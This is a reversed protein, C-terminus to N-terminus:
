AVGNHHTEQQTKREESRGSEKENVTAQPAEDANLDLAIIHSLTVLHVLLGNAM